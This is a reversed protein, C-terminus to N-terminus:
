QSQSDECRSFPRLHRQCGPTRMQDERNTRTLATRHDETGNQPLVERRTSVAPGTTPRRRNEDDNRISEARSQSSFCRRCRRGPASLLSGQARRESVGKSFEMALVLM